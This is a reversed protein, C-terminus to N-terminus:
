GHEEYIGARSMADDSRVPMSTEVMEAFEDALQDALYEFEDLSLESGAVPASVGSLQPSKKTDTSVRTNDSRFATFDRLLFQLIEAKEAWTLSLLQKEFEKVTM